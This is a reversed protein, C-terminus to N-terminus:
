AVADDTVAPEESYLDNQAQDLMANKAKEIEVAADIEIGMQSSITNLIDIATEPSILNQQLNMVIGATLQQFAAAYRSNDKPNMEPFIAHIKIPQLNARGVAKLYERAVYNLIEEVMQKLERQRMSFIKYTPDDMAEATSRNADGGGGIWHEPITNGALIHNRFLRAANSSDYSKLEPSEVKWEESDNHIRASGPKPSKIENARANVESATAGKLTIDWIFARSMNARELEGFLFQEYADIWDFSALLDSRGRRVGLLANITFFFCEGDYISTDINENSNNNIIKLLLQKGNTTQTTQVALKTRGNRDLIVENVYCASIYGISVKGTYPSVTVPLCVDGYIALERIFQELFDDMKNQKWFESIIPNIDIKCEDINEIKWSVGGGLIHAVKLEIIRNAIPNYAWLYEALNQMRRQDYPMLNRNHDHGLPTWGFDEDALITRGADSKFSQFYQKLKNLGVGIFNM